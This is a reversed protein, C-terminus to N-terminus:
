DYHFEKLLSHTRERSKQLAKELRTILIQFDRENGQLVCQMPGDLDKFYVSFTGEDCHESNSLDISLEFRIQSLDVGLYKNNFDEM